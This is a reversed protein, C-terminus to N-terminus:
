TPAMKLLSACQKGELEIAPRGWRALAEEVAEEFNVEGMGGYMGDGGGHKYYLQTVDDPGPGQPEPRAPRSWRALGDRLFGVFHWPHIIDIVSTAVDAGQEAYAFGNWWDTAFENLEEDTPGSGQSEPQALATRARFILEVDTGDDLSIGGISNSSLWDELSDALEACLARFDTM